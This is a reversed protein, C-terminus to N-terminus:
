RVGVLQIRVQQGERLASRKSHWARIVTFGLERLPIMQGGGIM